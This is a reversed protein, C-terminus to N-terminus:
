GVDRRRLWFYVPVGLLATVLGLSAQTPERLVMFGASWLTAVVFVVPVLPFGPDGPFQIGTERFTRAPGATIHVEAIPDTGFGQNPGTVTGNAIEVLM